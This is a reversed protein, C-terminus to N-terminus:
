AKLPKPLVAAIPVIEIARGVEDAIVFADPVREAGSMVAEAVLERAALQAERLAHSTDPLDQGEDDPILEDGERVHFYYRAMRAGEYPDQRM